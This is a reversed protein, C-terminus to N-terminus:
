LDHDAIEIELKMFEPLKANTKSRRNLIVPKIKYSSM